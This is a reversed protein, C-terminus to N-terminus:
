FLYDQLSPNEYKELMLCFSFAGLALVWPSYLIISASLFALSMLVVAGVFKPYFTNLYRHVQNFLALGLEATFQTLHGVLYAEFCEGLNLSNSLSTMAMWSLLSNGVELWDHLILLMWNWPSAFLFVTNAVPLFLLTPFILGRDFLTFHFRAHFRSFSSRGGIRDTRTRSFKPALSCASFSFGMSQM